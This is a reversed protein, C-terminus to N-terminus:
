TELWVKKLREIGAQIEEEKLNAYGLLLVIEKREKQAEKEILYDSVSYVKVGQEGALHLLEEETKTGHYRLLVHLGANEGEITFLKRFPKLANLLFEHKTKYIKRMKNLHREFYGEGLFSQLAAQDIRSVTSSYFFARQKYAELLKLPLVMYSVRIAPAISKSFTGIYIVKGKRDSAQLAPIPKGKYRFESDYDDEILYRDKGENAWTLLEMRRGIPMVIGMPFQHSPMVYAIQAGSEYLERINMGNEDMSVAKIQYGCGEFIRYARQYTPNELAITKKEGLIKELLMLLYDNGAGVIIQEPECIVGRSAHLYHSISKRLELEGQPNGLSFLQNQHNLLANKQIVKWVSFPFGDTEVGNPSFDYSYAAKKERKEEEGLFSQVSKSDEFHFLEEIKSVFYGRYPKAELYGESVLQAYALEVTSRSIQLYEALSRTSPLKENELLKGMRIENVIHEYIQEYLHKESKAHLTIVLENM